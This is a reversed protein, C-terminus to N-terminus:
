NVGANIGNQQSKHGIQIQREVEISSVREEPISFEFRLLFSIYLTIVSTIADAFILNFNRNNMKKLNKLHQIHLPIYIM